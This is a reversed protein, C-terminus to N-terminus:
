SKGTWAGGQIMVGNHILFGRIRNANVVADRGTWGQKDTFEAISPNMTVRAKSSVFKDGTAKKRLFCGAVLEEPTKDTFACFDAVVALLADQLEPPDEHHRASAFWHAIAPSDKFEESVDSM